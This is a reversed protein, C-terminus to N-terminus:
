FGTPPGVYLVIPWRGLHFAHELRDFPPAPTAVQGDIKRPILLSLGNQAPARVPKPLVATNLPLGDKYSPSQALDVARPPAIEALNQPATAM